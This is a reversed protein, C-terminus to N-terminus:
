RNKNKKLTELIDEIKGAEITEKEQFFIIKPVPRMRLRKNLLQQLRWIQSGLIELTKKIEQEPLCSIYIKSQYLNVSTEVRTLTVLVNPSFDVERLIIQSLEKKILQNVQHIRNSM